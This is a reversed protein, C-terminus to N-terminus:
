GADLDFTDDFADRVGEVTGPELARYVRMIEQGFRNRQSTVLELDHHGQAYRDADPLTSQTFIILEGPVLEQLHSTEPEVSVYRHQQEDPHDLYDHASPTVQLRRAWLSASPDLSHTLFHPTQLSFKDLVLYPRMDPHDRHLQLIYRSVVTLDGRYFYHAEATNRAILFYLSADYVTGLVVVGAVVGYAVGRWVEGVRQEFWHVVVAAAIGAVMFFPVILGVSRLGHPLGQASTVVPALMGGLLLLFYLCILDLHLEQGRVVKKFLVVCGRIMWAVGLLTLVGLLPNLLPYGAVNHRWNLDGSGAFFSVLTAQTTYSLTGLLTGGGIERQLETNFISVQGARGVFDQPHAVFYLGLPAFVVLAAVVGVAIQGGYRALHPWGIRPHLAALLWVMFIGIVVGVMVRFAIYTYFGGAFAAGALAAWVYSRVRHGRRLDHVVGGAFATFLAVFLPILIARFGTRSLTVHWHSTALFLAAFFGALRGFWVRTAAYVSLVTLVGVAASVVHIQWVGIGFVAFSAALFYFFLGERGNGRPYFSRMDGQLILLADEGNAAEDPFLGSPYQQIGYLRFVAALSVIGVVVLVGLLLTRRM